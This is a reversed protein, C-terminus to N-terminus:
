SGCPMALHFLLQWCIDSRQLWELEGDAILDLALVQLCELIIVQAVHQAALPYPRNDMGTNQQAM